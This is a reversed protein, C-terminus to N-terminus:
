KIEFFDSIDFPVYIPSGPLHNHNKDYQSKRIFSEEQGDPIIIVAWASQAAYKSERVIAGIPTNLSISIFINDFYKLEIPKLEKKVVGSVPLIYERGEDRDGAIDEVTQYIWLNRMVEYPAEYVFDCGVVVVLYTDEPLNEPVTYCLYPTEGEYVIKMSDLLEQFIPEAYEKKLLGQENFMYDEYKTVRGTNVPEEFVTPQEGNDAEQGDANELTDSEARDIDALDVYVTRTSDEWRVTAGLAEAAYRIPVYTRENDLVAYTDMSSMTVGNIKYIRQGIMFLVTTDERVITVYQNVGDWVIDCGLAEVVFRVPVQTRGNEDLYAPADPFEVKNGNVVVNILEAAQSPIWITFLIGIVLFIVTVATISKKM